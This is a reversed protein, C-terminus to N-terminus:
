YGYLGADLPGEGELIRAREKPQVGLEMKAAAEELGDYLSKRRDDEAQLPPKSRKKGKTPGINKAGFSGAYKAPDAEGHQGKPGGQFPKGMAALLAETATDYRHKPM